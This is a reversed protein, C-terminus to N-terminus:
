DSRVARTFFWSMSCGPLSPTLAVVRLVFFMGLKVLDKARLNLPTLFEDQIPRVLTFFAALFSSTDSKNSEFAVDIQPTFGKRYRDSRSRM